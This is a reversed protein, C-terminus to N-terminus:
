FMVATNNNRQINLNSDIAIITEMEIVLHVNYSNNDGLSTWYNKLSYM